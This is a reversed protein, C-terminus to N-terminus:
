NSLSHSLIRELFNDEDIDGYAFLEDEIFLEPVIVIGKSSTTKINEVYLKLGKKEKTIKGLLEKARDCSECKKTVFLTISM